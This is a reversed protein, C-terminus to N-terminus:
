IEASRADYSRAVDYFKVMLNSLALLLKGQIGLRRALDRAEFDQLGKRIDVPLSAVRDPHERAIEEIGSGGVSSLIVVPRRERDDVILGLYFEREVPLREEVLVTDVNFNGVPQGLLANAAQAADDPTEVFHILKKAARSTVWAQAKVVAPVGLSEALQRATNVDSAAGGRPVAIGAQALIQKGQFEHLRAM